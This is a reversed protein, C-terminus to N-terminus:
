VGAGRLVVQVTKLLIYVDDALGANRFYHLDMELKVRHEDATEGYPGLVQPWGTLGPPYLFRLDYM